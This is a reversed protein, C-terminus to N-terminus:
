SGRSSSAPPDFTARILREVERPNSVGQLRIIPQAGHGRLLAINGRQTGTDTRITYLPHAPEVAIIHTRGHRRVEVSMLRTSTIAYITRRARAAAKWPQVAVFVMAAVILVLFTADVLATVWDIPARRWAERGGVVGLGLFLLCLGALYSAPAIMDRFAQAPDPSGSWRLTEGADLEAALVANLDPAAHSKSPTQLAEGM